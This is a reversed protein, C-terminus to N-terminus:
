CSRNFIFTDQPDSTEITGSSPGVCIIDQQGDGAYVHHKDGTGSIIRDNGPGGVLTDSGAEGDTTDDGKGGYLTDDGPGGYLTDSGKGGRM